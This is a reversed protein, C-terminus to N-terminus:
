PWWRLTFYLFKYNACFSFILDLWDTDTGDWDIYSDPIRVNADQPRGANTNPDYDPNYNASSPNLPDFRDIYNNNRADKTYEILEQANMMDPKNAVSQTGTYSDFTISPKAGYQGKKTTILVVGNSGRSGYIAAASADKLIEISEIDSPNFTALPNSAPPRFALRRRFLTGQLNLDKHIPLGDIVYLPDNGATISGTGRIRINPEAGPEGSNEQIDVGSIQGQVAYEFSSVPIDRLTEESIRAVSGTIERRQQTGYGVVTIEEGVIARPAMFIDIVERGGIAIQQRLYGIFSFILTDQPSVNELVYQGEIDTTTGRDTNKLVINLGPLPSGDEVDVVRGTVRQVQGIVQGVLLLSMALSTLLVKARM